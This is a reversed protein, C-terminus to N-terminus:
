HKGRLIPAYTSFTSSWSYTTKLVNGSCCVFSLAILLFRCSDVRSIPLMAGLHSSRGSVIKDINIRKLLAEQAQQESEIAQVSVVAPMSEDGFRGTLTPKVTRKGLCSVFKQGFVSTEPSVTALGPAFSELPSGNQSGLLADDYKWQLRRM